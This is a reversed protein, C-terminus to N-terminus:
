HTELQGRAEIWATAEILAEHVAELDVGDGEYVGLLESLREVALQAVRAAAELRVAEVSPLAAPSRDRGM